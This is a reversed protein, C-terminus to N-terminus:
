VRAMVRAIEGDQMDLVYAVLEKDTGIFGHEEHWRDTSALSPQQIMRIGRATEEKLQHLHGTFVYRNKTKGWAEAHLDAIMGPLTSPKIGEGHTMAVLNNGFVGVQLSTYDVKFTVDPANHFRARMAEFLHISGCYDHNGKVLWGEVPAYGRLVQIWDEALATGEVVIRAYTGDVDQPTGKTTTHGRTDVHFWDGGLGIVWKGINGFRTVRDIVKHTAEMLRKACEERSYEQGSGVELVWGYKGYHLDTPHLVVVLENDVHRLSIRPPRVPEPVGCEEYISKMADFIFTKMHRFKLADQKTQEWARREFATVLSQEKMRLMDQVGEEVDLEALEEDTFPASTKTKRLARLIETLTVRSWGFQRGIQDQSAGRGGSQVMNAYIRVLARIKTGPVACIGKVSNLSFLYVDNDKNYSYAQSTQGREDIQVEQAEIEFGMYLDSAPEEAPAAPAPEALDEMSLSEQGGGVLGFMENKSIRGAAVAARVQGDTVCFEFWNLRTPHPRSRLQGANRRHRVGSESIGLVRQADKASVWIEM